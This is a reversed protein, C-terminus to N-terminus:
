NDHNVGESIKGLDKTKEKNALFFSRLSERRRQERDFSVSEGATKGSTGETSLLLFRTFNNEDDQVNKLLIWAGYLEAARTGAIAARKPDRHKMVQAVSGATDEAEVRKLHPRDLFFRSCQALAVPHSAVSEIEALSSGPCGILQQEIPITVEGSILLSSKYLLDLCPQITGVLSNEVPTLAYDAVGADISHFLEVFTPRPVLEIDAGLLKIAAEESFAGHEGQFAVRIKSKEENV